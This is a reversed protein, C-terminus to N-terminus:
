RCDGPPLLKSGWWGVMRILALSLGSSIHQIAVFGLKVLRPEGCCALFVSFAQGAGLPSGKKRDKRERAAM